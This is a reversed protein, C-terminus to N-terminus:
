NKKRMIRYYIGIGIGIGVVAILVMAIILFDPILDGPGSDSTFQLIYTDIMHRYWQDVKNYNSDLGSGTFGVTINYDPIVFIFQGGAGYTHYGNYPDDTYFLYGYDYIKGGGINFWRHDIKYTTAERIWESSILQTGNWTGNNLCIMGIKAQVRPTCEFGWGGLNVGKSDQSFDWDGDAIGMPDFLHQKAFTAASNGTVNNIIAALLNVGDNSYEFAGTQGPTFMLPLDDLTWEVCDTWVTSGSPYATNAGNPLGSNHTLLQEITINKKVESYSPDWIDAFFEYLTQNIGSLYGKDIAIGILLAMLSKTTSAQGHLTTGWSYEKVDRLQYNYLYEESVIYGNRVIIVSHVDLAHDEIYDYMDSISNSDLGQEEPVVIIWDNTPWYPSGNTASVSKPLILFPVLLSTISFALLSINRINRKIHKM